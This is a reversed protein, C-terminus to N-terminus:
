DLAFTLSKLYGTEALSPLEPHDPGAFGTRILRASRGAKGIGTVSAKRFAELDAAHSCSCLVLVGGPSVLKAAMRAAKEYARLGAQLASKHPAFAPPDSIVVGYSRGTSALAALVDFADGSRTELREDAGMQEAGKRALELAAESADVLLASTAGAALAALGFGGVHCFVDLVDTGKAFRAAFAHNERQDYFLGTKQGGLLDAMYVAGNMEVPLPGDINGRVVEIGETLGELSRARGSGNKVVNTVGSAVIADALADLRLDAWAANPQLVATDGFRDIVVGPLADAEAHVWRWYPKEFLRNRLSAATSLRKLFWTQDVNAEPDRDVVRAIIKSNPNVAVLGIPRREVDELRALSGPHLAKTRRDTVLEDAWVWPYGHRLRRANAKPRLRVVPYSKSETM